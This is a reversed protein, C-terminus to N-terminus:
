AQSLGNLTTPLHPRAAVMLRWAAHRLDALSLDIRDACFGTELARCAQAVQLAAAVMATCPAGVSTGAITMAGCPDLRGQAVLAALADSVPRVALDATDPWAM